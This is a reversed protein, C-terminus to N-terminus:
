VRHLFPLGTRAEKSEILPPLIKGMLRLLEVHEAEDLANAFRERVASSMVEWAEGIRRRGEDQLRVGVSRGDTEVTCRVVYGRAELRDVMRSLGSHSLALSAAIEKLTLRGGEAQDLTYLLDYETQTGVGAERFAEDVSESVLHSVLFFAKWSRRQLDSIEGSRIKQARMCINQGLGRMRCM